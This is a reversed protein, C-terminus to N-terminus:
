GTQPQSRRHVPEILKCEENVKSSGLVAVRALRGGLEDNM